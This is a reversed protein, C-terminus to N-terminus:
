NSRAPSSDPLVETPWAGGLSHILQITTHVLDGDVRVVALQQKLATREADIHELQHIAGEEYRRQSLQAARAASQHAARVAARQEALSRRQILRDEVEQFAELVVQRYQAVEEDHRATAHAIKAKRRGGDFLPLELGMGFLFTRSSWRLLEGLALSEGGAAGTLLLRPFDAAHAAGMRANAATMASEAAAIDPRRQLLMSPIGAPVVPPSFQLPRVPLEFEAPTYGLLSALAHEALVRHRQATLLEASANDRESRARLVALEDHQGSAVAAQALLHDREWLVLGDALVAVEADLARIRFYSDAVDAQLRLLVHRYLAAQRTSDAAAATSEAAIRGSLDVEYGVDAGASWRQGSTAASVESAGDRISGFSGALTPLFAARQERQLAHAQQLRALAAQLNPSSHQARAQYSDLLPDNFISWWNAQLQVENSADIPAAAKGPVSGHRYHEPVSIVASGSQPVTSCGVATTALLAALSLRRLRAPVVTALPRKM